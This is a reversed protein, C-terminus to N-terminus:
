SRKWYYRTYTGRLYTAATLTNSLDTALISTGSTATLSTLRCWGSTNEFTVNMLMGCGSFAYPSILTVSNPIVISTLSSCDSFAADEISTVRNPIEVSALSRCGSFAYNGISTVGKGIAVSTLNNCRNFAFKEISTVSDAIEVRILSSCDSFAFQNILSGGTIVVEKLSTPVHTSNESYNTAGFIYGFHANEMGYISEGIFPLTIKKLCNCDDFAFKEISNVSNPIEISTGLYGAFAFSDIIAISPNDGWKIEANCGSFAFKGISTVSNGLTISVLSKCNEFCYGNIKTAKTIEVHTLLENNIYLNEGYILPNANNIGFEIQVWEDITGLYNVKSLFSCDDFASNGISSVNSGIIISSLKKCGSFAFEGISTVSGPIEVSALSSCNIFANNGISTVAKGNYEDPIIVNSNVVSGIGTVSYSKGDANLDYSLVEPEKNSNSCGVVVFSLLIISLLLIIINLKKM